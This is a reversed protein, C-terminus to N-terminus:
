LTFLKSGQQFDPGAIGAVVYYWKVAMEEAARDRLEDAEEPSAANHLNIKEVEQSSLRWEDWSLDEPPHYHWLKKPCM